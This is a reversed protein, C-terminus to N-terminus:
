LGLCVEDIFLSQGLAFLILPSATSGILGLTKDIFVPTQWKFFSFAVGFISAM